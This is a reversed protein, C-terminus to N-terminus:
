RDALFWVEDFPKVERIIGELKIFYKEGTTYITREVYTSGYEIDGRGFKTLPKDSNVDKFNLAFKM